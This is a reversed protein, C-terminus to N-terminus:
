SIELIEFKTQDFGNLARKAHSRQRFWRAKKLNDTLYYSTGKIIADRDWRPFPKGKVYKGSDIHRVIYMVVNM